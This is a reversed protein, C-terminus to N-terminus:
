RSTRVHSLLWERQLTFFEPRPGGLSADGLGHDGYPFVRITVDRNGARRLSEEWVAASKEAPVLPDLKGLLALVPCHVKTLAATPDYDCILRWQAQVKQDQPTYEPHFWTEKRAAKAAADFEAWGNGTKACQSNM